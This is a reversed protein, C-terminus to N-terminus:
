RRRNSPSASQSSFAPRLAVVGDRGDWNLARPVRAAERGSRDLIISYPMGLAGFHQVEALSAFALRLHPYHGSFARIGDQKDADVSAAIVVLDARKAALRDLSPLEKRCPACWSAWFNVVVAKGRFTTPSFPAGEQTAISPLGSASAAQAPAVVQTVAIM